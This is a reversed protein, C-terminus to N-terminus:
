SEAFVLLDEGLPTSFERSALIKGGVAVVSIVHLGAPFESVDVSLSVIEKPFFEPQSIFRDLLKSVAKQGELRGVEEEDIIVRAGANDATAAVLLRPGQPDQSCGCFAFAAIVLPVALACVM